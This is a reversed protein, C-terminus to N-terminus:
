SVVPGPVGTQSEGTSCQKAANDHAIPPPGVRIKKLAEVKVKHEFRPWHFERPLLERVKAIIETAGGILKQTLEVNVPEKAKGITACGEHVFSNRADKLHKFLEWLKADEKLSQGTFFKLLDDYQEVLTPEQRRDDRENIWSWLDPPVKKYAAMQDLVTSIFVELATMTLVIAPGVSPLEGTADLLLKEWPPPDYDFPLSHIDEWIKKNLTMWSFSLQFSGYGRTLGEAKALESEDDNLYQLKWTTLPFNISRVQASREVYRLRVVFSNLASQIIHMPPDRLEGSRRDFTEKFFDIRIADAQYAPIGDVKIVGSEEVSPAKESRVPPYFRVIYGDIEYEYIPFQEGEPITTIFPALVILRAIM